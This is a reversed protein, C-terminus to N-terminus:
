PPFSAHLLTRECGSSPVQTATRVGHGALILAPSPDYTSPRVLELWEPWENGTQERKV